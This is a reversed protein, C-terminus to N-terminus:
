LTNMGVLVENRVGLKDFIFHIKSGIKKAEYEVKHTSLYHVALLVREGKGEIPVKLVYKLAKLSQGLCTIVERQQEHSCNQWYKQFSEPLEELRM